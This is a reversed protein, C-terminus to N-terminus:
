CTSTVDCAPDFRLPPQIEREIVLAQSPHERYYWKHFLAEIAEPGSQDLIQGWQRWHAGYNEPLDTAAYAQAGNRVKRIIQEVSRYPFHRIALGHAAVIAKGDAHWAEHNGMGIVLDPTYRCAVKPLPAAYDRRWEIRSIPNRDTPDDSGTCVHDYLNAKVIDIDAPMQEGLFDALRTRPSYWIEDADFPVIWDAGWMQNADHAMKTMKRSQEYGVEDDFIVFLPFTDAWEIQLNFLIDSTGDVSRNNAVILADVQTAMHRLVPEIIDAEDRVMTVGATFSL